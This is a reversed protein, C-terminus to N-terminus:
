AIVGGLEPSTVFRCQKRPCNEPPPPRCSTSSSPLPTASPIFTPNPSDANTRRRAAPARESPRVCPPRRAAARNGNGAAHHMDHTSMHMLAPRIYCVRRVASASLATNARSDRSDASALAPEAAESIPELLFSLSVALHLLSSMQLVVVWRSSPCETSCRRRIRVLLM